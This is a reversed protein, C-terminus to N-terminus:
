DRPPPSLYDCGRLRSLAVEPPLWELWHLEGDVSLVQEIFYRRGADLTAARARPPEGDALSEIRHVGPLAYYCFYSAKGTAGVLADNDLVVFPQQNREAPRLVCVQAAGRPPGRAPESVADWEACAALVLALPWVRM